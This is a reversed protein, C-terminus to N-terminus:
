HKIGAVACTDSEIGKWTRYSAENKAQLYAAVVMGAQACLAIPDGERKVIEYKQLEDMVVQQYSDALPDTSALNAKHLTELYRLNAAENNREGNWSGWYLLALLVAVIALGARFAWGGSQGDVLKGSM